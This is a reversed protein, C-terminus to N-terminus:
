IRIGAVQLILYLIVLVAAVIVVSRWPEQIRGTSVLYVLLIVLGALIILARLDM